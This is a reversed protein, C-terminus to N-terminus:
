SVRLETCAFRLTILCNYCRCLTHQQQVTGRSASPQTLDLDDAECKSAQRRLAKIALLWCSLPILVM